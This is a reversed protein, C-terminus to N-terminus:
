GSYGVNAGVDNKAATPWLCGYIRAQDIVTTSATQTM